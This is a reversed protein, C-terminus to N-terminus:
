VGDSVQTEMVRFWAAVWCVVPLAVFYLAKAVVAGAAFAIRHSRYLSEVAVVAESIAGGFYPAFVIRALVLAFMLLGITIATVALSTKIFNGKRFWAAGLFYVSQIAVYHAILVWVAPAFPEFPSNRRGLASGMTETVYSMLLTFALVFAVLGVSVFLLRVLTKELSSAPLLLYAENSRKSHLERFARSTAVPGWLFLIVAFWSLYFSSGPATSRGLLLGSLLMIGALTVSVILLSRYGNVVDARILLGLRRWSFLENGDVM